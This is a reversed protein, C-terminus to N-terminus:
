FHDRLLWGPLAPYRKLLQYWARIGRSSCATSGIHFRTGNIM